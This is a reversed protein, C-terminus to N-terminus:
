VSRFHLYASRCRVDGFFVHLQGAVRRGGAVRDGRLIIVLVGLMIQAQDRSSLLLETLLIGIITGFTFHAVVVDVVGVVREVVAVVRGSLRHMPLWHLPLRHLALRVDAVLLGIRGALRLRVATAVLLMVLPARLMMVVLLILVMLVILLVWVLM